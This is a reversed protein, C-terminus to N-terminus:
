FNDEILDSIFFPLNEREYSRPHQYENIFLAPTFNFDNLACWEYQNKLNTDIEEIISIPYLAIWKEIDKIKFWQHLAEIFVQESEYYLSVLSRFLMKSSDNEKELNTKFIIKIQIQDKYQKYIKNLIEHAEECYSCFPNTIIGIQTKSEKNGLIIPSYPLEIKEDSLLITKFNDYNRQFRNAEIQNEKL